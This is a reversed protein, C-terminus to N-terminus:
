LHISDIGYLEKLDQSIWMKRHCRNPDAEMCMICVRMAQVKSALTKLCEKYGPQRVGTKGGLCQGAWAYRPGLERILQNRNFAANYKSYPRSRVDLLLQIKHDDLLRIVERITKGHYGITWLNM